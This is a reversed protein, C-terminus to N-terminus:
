GDGGGGGPSAAIKRRRLLICYLAEDKAPKSTSKKAPMRRRSRCAGFIVPEKGALGVKFAMHRFGDKFPDIQREKGPNILLEQGYSSKLVSM